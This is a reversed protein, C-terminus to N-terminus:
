VGESTRGKYPIHGTKAIGQIYTQIPNHLGTPHLRQPCGPHYVMQANFIAEPSKGSPHKNISQHPIRGSQQPTIGIRFESGYDLGGFTKRM